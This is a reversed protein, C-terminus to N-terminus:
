GLKMALNALTDAVHECYDIANEINELVEKERLIVKVDIAAAHFLASIAERFVVDASKELQRMERVDDIMEGYSHARLKPVAKDIIETCQVLILILQTMAPSPRDVGYLDCARAAGNTLDLVDDLDKSLKQLDERDIPTIFTTALAEEMQHVIKDGEHEWEQVVGRVSAASHNNNFAALATAGNLAMNAQKEIYGYFRDEKPLLWGIMDQLRM